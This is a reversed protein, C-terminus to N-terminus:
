HYPPSPDLASRGGDVTIVQGTVFSSSDTALYQAVEAVESAEGIRSLPTAREIEAQAEQNGSVVHWLSASMVSGLSVANVRIRHRALATAMARTMQELAACSMSYALLDPSARQAAISSLNIISGASRAGNQGDDPGEEEAQKIMRNAVIQALRMALMANQEMLEKATEDELSLPDNRRVKRSANVLIDIRDFAAVAASVLNERALKKSLDGAFAEVTGDKADPLEKKLQEENKDAFVVNAGARYFQNAIALGVGSAAGTVIATKGQISFSM